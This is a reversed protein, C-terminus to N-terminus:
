MQSNNVAVAIEFRELLKIYQDNLFSPFRDDENYLRVVESRSIKGKGQTLLLKGYPSQLFDEITTLHLYFIGDCPHSSPMLLSSALRNDRTVCNKLVGFVVM